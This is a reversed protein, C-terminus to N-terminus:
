LSYDFIKGKYLIKIGEIISNDEQFKIKKDMKELYRYNSNGIIILNPDLIRNKEQLYNYFIDLDFSGNSKKFDEVIKVEEEVLLKKLEDERLDNELKLIKYYTNLNIKEILNKYMHYLKEDNNNDELFKNIIQKTNIKFKNRILSYNEYFSDDEYVAIKEDLNISTVVENNNSTNVKPEAQLSEIKLELDSLEKNLKELQIEKNEIVDDYISINDLIDRKFESNLKKSINKIAFFIFVNVIVIVSIIAVSEQLM